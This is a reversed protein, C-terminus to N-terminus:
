FCCFNCFKIRKITNQHMIEDRGKMKTEQLGYLFAIIPHRESSTYSVAAARLKCSYFDSHEKTMEYKVVIPFRNFGVMRNCTRQHGEGLPKRNSNVWDPLISQLCRKLQSRLQASVQKNTDIWYVKQRILSPYITHIKKEHLCHLIRKFLFMIQRRKAQLLPQNLFITELKTGSEHYHVLAKKKKKKPLIYRVM